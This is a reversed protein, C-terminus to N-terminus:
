VVLCSNFQHSSFFVTNEYLSWIYKKKKSFFRFRNFVFNKFGSFKLEVARYSMINNSETIKLIDAFILGTNEFRASSCM